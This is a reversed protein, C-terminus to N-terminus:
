KDVIGVVFVTLNMQRVCHLTANFVIMVIEVYWPFSLLFFHFQYRCMKSIVCIALGDGRIQNPQTSFNFHFKNLYNRYKVNLLANTHIHTHPACKGKKQQKRKRGLSVCNQLLIFIIWSTNQMSMLDMRLLVAITFYASFTNRKDNLVRHRVRHLATCYQIM